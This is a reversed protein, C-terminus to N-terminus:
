LIYLSQYVILYLLSIIWLLSKYNKHSNIYSNAFSPSIIDKLIYCIEFILSFKHLCQALILLMQQKFNVSIKFHWISIISVYWILIRKLGAQQLSSISPKKKKREQISSPNSIIWLIWLWPDCSQPYNSSKFGSLFFIDPSIDLM